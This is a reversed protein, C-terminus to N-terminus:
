IHCGGREICIRVACSKSKGVSFVTVVYKSVLVTRMEGETKSTYLVDIHPPPPNGLFNRFFTDATFM